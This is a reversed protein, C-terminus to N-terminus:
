SKEMLRILNEHTKYFINARSILGDEFSYFELVPMLIEERTSPSRFLIHLLALAHDDGAPYVDITQISAELSERITAGIEAFGDPGIHEGGFPLDLPEDFIAKPHICSRATAGDRDILAKTFRKVVALPEDAM